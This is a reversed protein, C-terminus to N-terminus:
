FYELYIISVHHGGLTGEKRRIKPSTHLAWEVKLLVCLVSQYPCFLLGLALNVKQKSPQHELLIPFEPLLSVAFCTESCHTFHSPRPLLILSVSLLRESVLMACSGRPLLLQWDMYLVELLLSSFLLIFLGYFPFGSPPSFSIEGYDFRSTSLCWLQIRQAKHTFCNGCQARIQTALHLNSDYVTAPNRPYVFGCSTSLILETKRNTYASPETCQCGGGGIGLGFMDM